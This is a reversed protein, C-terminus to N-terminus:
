LRELVALSDDTSGDDVVLVEYGGVAGDTLLTDLVPRLRSVFLPLVEQEDYVPVVISLLDGRPSPPTPADTMPGGDHWRARGDGESRPGARGRGATPLGQRR